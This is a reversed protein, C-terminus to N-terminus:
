EKASSPSTGFLVTDKKNGRTAHQLDYFGWVSLGLLLARLGLYVVWLTCWKSFYSPIRSTMFRAKTPLPSLFFHLKEQMTVSADGRGRGGGNLSFTLEEARKKGEEKKSGATATQKLAPPSFYSFLDVPLFSCLIQQWSSGPSRSDRFISLNICFFVGTSLLSQYLISERNTQIDLRPALSMLLSPQQKNYCHETGSSFSYNWM